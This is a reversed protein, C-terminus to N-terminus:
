IKQKRKKRRQSSPPPLVTSGAGDEGHIKRKASMTFSPSDTADNREVITAEAERMSPRAGCRRIFCSVFFGNTLDEGPSCRVVAETDLVTILWGLCTVLPVMAVVQTMWSGRNDGDRGSLFYWLARPWDSGVLPRKWVEYHQLWLRSTRRPTSAARQTFLRKLARFQTALTLESVLYWFFLYFTCKM